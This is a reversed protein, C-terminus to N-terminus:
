STRDRKKSGKAVCRYLLEDIGALRLTERQMVAFTDVSTGAVSAHAKPDRLEPETLVSAMHLCAAAAASLDDRSLQRDTRAVTADLLRVAAGLTPNVSFCHEDCWERMRSLMTKRLNPDGRVQLKDANWEDPERCPTADGLYTFGLNPRDAPQAALMSRWEIPLAARARTLPADAGEQKHLSLYDRADGEHIWLLRAGMCLEAMIIGLSWVDISEDYPDERLVEPAAYPLTTPPVSHLISSEKRRVLISTGFDAIKLVRETSSPKFVLINGPKVDRHIVGMKHLHTLASTLQKHWRRITTAPQLTEIYEHLSRHAEPMVLIGATVDTALIPMINPHPAVRAYILAEQLFDVCLAGRSGNEGHEHYRKEVTGDGRCWVSGSSGSRLHVPSACSM